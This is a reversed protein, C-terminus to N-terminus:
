AMIQNIDRQMIQKIRANLKISHGIFQRKPLRVTKKGFVKAQGGENHVDAYPLNSFIIAKGTETRYQISEKLDGTMGSLTRRTRATPSYNTIPNAKRAKYKGKAKWRKPHNNPTRTRAGYMFGYWVSSPNTRKAPKWPVPSTDTFAQDMFNQKFHNKAEVGIIRPAKQDIYAKVKDAQQQLHRTFQQPTLIM